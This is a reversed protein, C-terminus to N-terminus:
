VGSGGQSTVLFLVMSALLTFILAVFSRLMWVNINKVGGLEKAMTTLKEQVLTMAAALEQNELRNVRRELERTREGLTALERETSGGPAAM